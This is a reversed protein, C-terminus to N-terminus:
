SVMRTALGIMRGIDAPKALHHAFGAEYSARVDYDTAYGSFAIGKLGLHDRCHRMIDLGSGDPLGIDSVLLNFQESGLAALATEVSSETRVNFGSSRLVMALTQLTDVNDDVLLVKHLGAVAPVPPLAQDQVPIVTKLKVKFVSGTSMGGSTVSLEGSHLDVLMKAIALGLGLGGHRRTVSQGGQEFADFVRSLAEPEIGIGSDAIEIAIQEPGAARSRLSIRGGVPTFKVANKILNWFVQQIRAPDAWVKHVEAGLALSVELKKTEIDAQCVELASRLSTHIDLVEQHLELKGSGIRTVDLLDDILQAELEVNRRIADLHQRIEEGSMGPVMEIYAIAALVPTLPTRLEHSLTALFRDKARGAAETAARAQKSEKETQKRATVDRINCQIIMHENVRYVNSVFEVEVHRGDKTELPLDEYRVYGREQLERFSARSAEIDGFLGIDWLHKGLLELRSYGLLDLVFPNADDIAGTEADLILIGDKASEFLRRFRIESAALSNALQSRGTIDEIALLLMKERGDKGNLKRANVLIIRKGVAPFEREVQYEGSHLDGTLIEELLTRLGDVNWQGEGLDFLSRGLTQEPLTDFIEYFSRNASRVHLDVDLVILSDQVAAIIVEGRRWEDEIRREVQRRETTDRFILVIGDLDGSEDCIPSASDAIARESGDKAILLTFQALNQVGGHAIVEKVPQIVPQRTVEHIIRFVTEIPRDRADHDTWGTLSEAAPNLLIVNGHSDTVIVADGISLLNKGLRDRRDDSQKASKGNDNKLPGQASESHSM